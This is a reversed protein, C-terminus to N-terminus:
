SGQLFIYCPLHLHHGQRTKNHRGVTTNDDLGRQGTDVLGFHKDCASISMYNDNDFEHSCLPWAVTPFYPSNHWLLFKLLQLPIHFTCDMASKEMAETYM